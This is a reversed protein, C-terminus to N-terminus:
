WPHAWCLFIQLPSLLPGRVKALASQMAERLLAPQDRELYGRELLDGVGEEVASLSYVTSLQRLVAEMGGSRLQGKAGAEAELQVVRGLFSGCLVACLVLAPWLSSQTSYLM